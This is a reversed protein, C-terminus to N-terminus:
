LAGIRIPLAEGGIRIPRPSASVIGIDATRGTVVGIVAAIGVERVVSGILRLWRLSRLKLAGFRSRAAFASDSSVLIMTHVRGSISNRGRQSGGREGAM